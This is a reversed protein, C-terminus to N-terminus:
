CNKNLLAKVADIIEEHNRNELLNILTDVESLEYKRGEVDNSYPTRLNDFIALAERNEGKAFYDALAAMMAANSPYDEEVITTTVPVMLREKQGIGGSFWIQDSYDTGIKVNPLHFLEKLTLARPTLVITGIDYKFQFFLNMLDKLLGNLKSDSVSVDTVEVQGVLVSDGESLASLMKPLSDKDKLVQDDDIICFITSSMLSEFIAVKQEKEPLNHSNVSGVIRAILTSFSRQYVEPLGGELEEYVLRICVNQSSNIKETLKSFKGKLKEGSELKKAISLSESTAGDCHGVPCNVYLLVEVSLGDGWNQSFISDVTPLFSDGAKYVPVLLAINPIGIEENLGDIIFAQNAELYDKSNGVWCKASFLKDGVPVKRGSCDIVYEESM